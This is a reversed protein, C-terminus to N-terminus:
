TAREASGGPFIEEIARVRFDFIEELKKRIFLLNAVAGLIGMPPRYSVIDRMMVGGDVEELHHEHHWMAYPGVRQEDVFYKGEEIHTIETVWTTKIGAVPSVRYSIIMGPYMKDPLDGSTIDFGMYGPTIRKLNAPSSIFEWVEDRSAPIFQETKLQYM